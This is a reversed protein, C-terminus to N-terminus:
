RNNLYFKLKKISNKIFWSIFSSNYKKNSTGSMGDIRLSFMFPLFNLGDSLSKFLARALIHEFYRNESDNLYTKYPLLYKQFFIPTYGFFRSDVMTYNFIVDAFVDCSKIEKANLFKNFNLIKHRGTVKFIFDANAIFKSHAHAYEFCKMEGMGKGLYNPYDNGYFTLIELRQNVIAEKFYPSIDTNSNEVFVIPLTTSKLWYEISSIYQSKRLESNVLLTKYMDNNTQITGTLLLIKKL